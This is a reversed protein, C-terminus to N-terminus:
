LIDSIVTEVSSILNNIRHESLLKDTKDGPSPIIVILGIHHKAIINQLKKSTKNEISKGFVSITHNKIKEYPIINGFSKAISDNSLSVGDDILAIENIPSFSCKEPVLLVPHKNMGLFLIPINIHYRRSSIGAAILQIDNKKVVSDIARKIDGPISQTEIEIGEGGMSHIKAAQKKLGNVSDNHLIDEISILLATRNIGNDFSNLLILRAKNGQGFQTLRANLLRSAYLAANTSGDSFDSLALITKVKNM